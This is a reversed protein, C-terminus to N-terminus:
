SAAARAPIQSRRLHAFLAASFAAPQEVMPLHGCREVKVFTADRVLASLRTWDACDSVKDDDGWVFLTRADLKKLKAEVDLEQAERLLRVMNTLRRRNLFFRYTEEIRADTIHTRDHFLGRAVDFAIGRTLKGCSAIGLTRGGMAPAGSLVLSEVKAPHQVAFALAVASGLSAGLITARDIAYRDLAAGLDRAAQDISGHSAAIPERMALCPYGSAVLSERVAAWIWDGAVLGSVMVVPVRNKSSPSYVFADADSVRRAM